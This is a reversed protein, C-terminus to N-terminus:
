LGHQFRAQAIKNGFSWTREEPEAIRWSYCSCSPSLSPETWVCLSPLPLFVHGSFAKRSRNRKSKSREGARWSSFSLVFRPPSSTSPTQAELPPPPCLLFPSSVL